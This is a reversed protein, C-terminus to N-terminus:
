MGVNIFEIMLRPCSSSLPERTSILPTPETMMAKKGLYDSATISEIDEVHLYCLAETKSSTLVILRPLPVLMEPVKVELGQFPETGLPHYSAHQDKVVHFLEADDAHQHLLPLEGKGLLRAELGLLPELEHV